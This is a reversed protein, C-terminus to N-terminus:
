GEDLPHNDPDPDPYIAKGEVGRLLLSGRLRLVAEGGERVRKADDESFISDAMEAARPDDSAVDIGLRELKAL